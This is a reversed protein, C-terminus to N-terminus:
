RTDAASARTAVVELAVEFTADTGEPFVRLVHRGSVEFRKVFTYQGDTVAQADFGSAVERPDELTVVVKEVRLSEAGSWLELQFVAERGVELVAPMKAQMSFDGSDVFITNTSAAGAGTQPGRGSLLHRATWGALIALLAGGVALAWTTRRARRRRRPTVTTVLAPAAPLVRRTEQALTESAVSAAGTAGAAERPSPPAPSGRPSPPAPNPSAQSPPAQVGRQSPSAARRPAAAPPPALSTMTSASGTSSSREEAPLDPATDAAPTQATRDATPALLADLRGVLEEATQIREEPRKRLLDSMLGELEESVEPRRARLLPPPKTMHALVVEFGTGDFPPEGTILEFLLCGLAYLDTRHDVERLEGQAQEPAMYHPTGIVKGGATLRTADASGQQGAAIGFDVITLHDEGNRDVRWIVNSPKLDRHVVGAAHTEALALAIQRALALARDVALPGDDLAQALSVGDLLEMALFPRGDDLEGVGYITVVGPHRIRAAARAERLFRKKMVPDEAVDFTPVKIAAPRDLGLQRGRYVTGCGGSGLIADIAFGDVVTHLLAMRPDPIAISEKTLGSVSSPRAPPAGAGAATHSRARAQPQAAARGDLSAPSAPAPAVRSATSSSLLAPRPPPPTSSQATRAPGAAGGPLLSDRAGADDDRPAGGPLFPDRAALAHADPRAPGAPLFPDRAPLAAAVADPIPADARLPDRAADARAASAPIALQAGADEARTRAKIGEHPRRPAAPPFLYTSVAAAAVPQAPLAGGCTPCSAGLENTPLHCTPCVRM